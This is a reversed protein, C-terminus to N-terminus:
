SHSHLWLIDSFSLSSPSCTRTDLAALHTLIQYVWGERANADGCKLRLFLVRMIRFFIRFPSTILVLSSGRATTFTIFPMFWGEAMIARAEIWQKYIFTHLAGGGVSHFFSPVMKSISFRSPGMTEPPCALTFYTIASIQSQMADLTAHDGSTFAPLPPYFLSILNGTCYVKEEPTCDDLKLIGICIALQTVWPLQAKAWCSDPDTSGQSCWLIRTVVHNMWHYSSQVAGWGVHVLGTM